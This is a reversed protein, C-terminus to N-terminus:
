TISETPASFILLFITRGDLNQQDPINRDVTVLVDFGATEAAEPLRGNKQRAFNTFGARQCDHAPSLLRVRHDICEDILLRM